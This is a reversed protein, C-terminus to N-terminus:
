GGGELAIQPDDSVYVNQMADECVVQLGLWGYTEASTITVTFAVSAADFQTVQVQFGLFPFIGKNLFNNVSCGLGFNTGCRMYPDFQRFILYRLELAPPGPAVNIVFNGSGPTELQVPDPFWPPGALCKVFAVVPLNITTNDVNVSGDNVLQVWVTPM